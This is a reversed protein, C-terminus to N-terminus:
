ACHCQVKDFNGSAETLAKKCDMMGAGSKERLEKVLKASVGGGKAEAKAPEAAAAKAPEAVAAEAPEAAAAVESEKVGDAQVHDQMDSFLKCDRIHRDASIMPSQPPLQAHRSWIAM